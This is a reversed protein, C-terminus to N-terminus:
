PTGRAMDILRKLGVTWPGLKENQTVLDLHIQHANDYEKGMLANTFALLQDVVNSSITEANLQDFLINLRKETDAVQKAFGPPAHQKVRAM